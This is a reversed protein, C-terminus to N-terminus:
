VVSKNGSSRNLNGVLRQSCYNVSIELNESIRENCSFPLPVLNEVEDEEKM